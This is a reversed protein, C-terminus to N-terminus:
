SLQKAKELLDKMLKSMLFSKGKERAKERMEMYLSENETIKNIAEVGGKIDDPGRLHIGEVGNTILWKQGYVASTIVPVGGYMFEIQTLGLAEMKSMIINLYSAKILSAKQDVSLEGTLIVNELKKSEKYVKDWQDGPKGAIVFLLDNNNKFHKAIEVVALPNKREEITGLYTIIKRDLKKKVFQELFLDPKADDIKKAEDDDLGGPFIYIQKPNAGQTIMDEGEIGTVVLILDAAKFISPLETMNWAIRYTREIPDYRGPEPPQYHSMHAYIIKKEQVGISGMLKRWLIWKATDEPGNWLTSHTVIFNIGIEEDIKNLTTIFDRFTIRRPPWNVKRSLVRITPLDIKPDRDFIKYPKESLELDRERIIPENDHYISTILYSKYGLKIAWKLMRQAVLEQGKSNSTQYMVPFFNFEM